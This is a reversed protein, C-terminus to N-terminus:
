SAGVGATELTAQSVLGGGHHFSLSVAVQTVNIRPEIVAKSDNRPRLARNPNPM